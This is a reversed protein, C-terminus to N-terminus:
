ASGDGNHSVRQEFCQRAYRRHPVSACSKCEASKSTMRSRMIGRGTDFQLTGTGSPFRSLLDGSKGSLNKYVDLTGSYQRQGRCSRGGAPSIEGVDTVSFTPKEWYM